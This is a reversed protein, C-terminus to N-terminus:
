YCAFRKSNQKANETGLVTFTPVCHLAVLANATRFAERLLINRVARLAASFAVELGGRFTPLVAGQGVGLSEKHRLVFITPPPWM